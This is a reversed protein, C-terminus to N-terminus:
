ALLFSIATSDCNLFFGEKKEVFIFVAIVGNGHNAGSGNPNVRRESCM